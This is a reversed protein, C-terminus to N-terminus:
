RSTVPFDPASDPFCRMDGRQINGETFHTVQVLGRLSVCPRVNLEDLSEKMSEIFPLDFWIDGLIVQTLVLM